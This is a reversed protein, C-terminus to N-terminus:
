FLLLHAFATALLGVCRQAPQVKLAPPARSPRRAAALALLLLAGLAVFLNLINRGFIVMLIIVFFMFPFANLIELVRMM